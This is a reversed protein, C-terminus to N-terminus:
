VGGGQVQGSNPLYERAGDYDVIHGDLCGVLAEPAPGLEKLPPIIYNERQPGFSEDRSGRKDTNLIYINGHTDKILIHRFNIDDYDYTVDTEAGAAIQIPESRRLAVAPPSSHRYRPLPGYRGSGTIMGIPMVLISEGSNNTIRFSELFALQMPNFANIARLGALGYMLIAVVAILGVLSSAALIYVHRRAWSLKNGSM